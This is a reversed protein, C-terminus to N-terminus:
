VTEPPPPPNGESSAAPGVPPQGVAEQSSAPIDDPVPDPELLMAEYRTLPEFDEDDPEIDDAEEFTEMGKDAAVRSLEQRIFDRMQDVRSQPLKLRTPMEVPTNDPYSYDSDLTNEYKM